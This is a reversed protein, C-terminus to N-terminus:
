ASSDLSGDLLKSYADGIICFNSPFNLLACTNSTVYLVIPQLLTVLHAPHDGPIVKVGSQLLFGNCDM